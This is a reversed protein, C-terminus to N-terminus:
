AVSSTQLRLVRLAQVRPALERITLITFNRRSMDDTINLNLPHDVRSLEGILMRKLKLRERRVFSNSSPITHLTVFKVYADQAFYTRAQRKDGLGGL